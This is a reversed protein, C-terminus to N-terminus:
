GVFKRILFEGGRRFLYPISYSLPRQEPYFQLVSRLGHERSKHKVCDLLLHVNFKAALERDAVAADVFYAKAVDYMLILKAGSNQVSISGRHERFISLPQDVYAFHRYSAATLLFILLDNGIAHQSFDSGISNPIDCLLNKRLDRTRFLACGPSVPVNGGLLAAEIYRRSPYVGTPGLRYSALEDAPRTERFSRVSTYVFGVDVDALYPTTTALYESAILDDSWLIKAYEGSAKDVCARWNKVPGINERNRFIKLRSEGAALRELVAWTDDTSANDVVIVEFNAYTQALAVQVTAEILHARNYVPILISVLESM